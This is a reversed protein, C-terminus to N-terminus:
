GLYDGNKTFFASSTRFNIGCGITDGATFPTGYHKGTTQGSYINGDDGHYAWSDPEWGPIRALIVGKKSFGIGISSRSITNSISALLSASSKVYEERKRSIIIVEFYYIGCQPPMPHDARISCAEYDRDSASKVGTFKVEQGEQIVEIGGYKDLSNWKSPLPHLGEDEVLPAKEIVDYTMGRHSPAIKAQLNVSSASTSLSGSQSQSTGDRQARLKIRHAEELKQVYKSGKLYSPVFFSDMQAGGFSGYGYGNNSLSAYASSFSPLHGNRGWSGPRGHSSGNTNFEADYGRYDFRQNGNSGHYNLDYNFDSNGQNSLQSTQNLLHSFAGARAPQSAAPATGSVVSAYSSRRPVFGPARSPMSSDPVGPSGTPYPNSM